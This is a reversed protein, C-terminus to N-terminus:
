PFRVHIQDLVMPKMLIPKVMQTKHDKEWPSRNCSQEFCRLQIAHCTDSTWRRLRFNPGGFNFEMGKRSCRWFNWKSRQLGLYQLDEWIDQKPIFEPLPQFGLKSLDYRRSYLEQFKALRPIYLSYWFKATKNKLTERARPWVLTQSKWLKVWGFKKIWTELIQNQHSSCYLLCSVCLIKRLSVM